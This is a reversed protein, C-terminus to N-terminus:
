RFLFFDLLIHELLKPIANQRIFPSYIWINIKNFLTHGYNLPIIGCRFILFPSYFVFCFDVVFYTGFLEIIDWAYEISTISYSCYGIFWNRALGIWNSSFISKPDNLVVNPPKAKHRYNAIRHSRAHKYPWQSRICLVARWIGCWEYIQIYSCPQMYWRIALISIYIISILTFWVCAFASIYDQAAHRKSHGRRVCVHTRICAISQATKAHMSFHEGFIWVLFFFLSFILILVLQKATHGICVWCDHVCLARFVFVLVDRDLSGSDRNEAIANEQKTDVQDERNGCEIYGWSLLEM